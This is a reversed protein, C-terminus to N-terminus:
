VWASTGSSVRSRLAYPARSNSPAPLGSIWTSPSHHRTTGAIEAFAINPCGGLGRPLCADLDRTDFNNVSFNDDDGLFGGFAVARVFRLDYKLAGGGG